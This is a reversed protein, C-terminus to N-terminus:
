KIKDHINGIVELRKGTKNKVHFLATEICVGRKLRGIVLEYPKGFETCLQRATKHVGNIEYTKNNRRNNNQVIRDVWRCNNPCYGDNVNIRDITLTKNYGNEMAWNYFNEFSKGWEDCVAIGRKGYNGYDPNGIHNCRSNMHMWINHLRSGTLGHKTKTKRLAENKCKVCGVGRARKFNQIDIKYERGCDCKVNYIRNGNSMHSFSIIILKNKRIGIWEDDDVRKAKFKIERM